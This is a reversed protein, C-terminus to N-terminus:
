LPLPDLVDGAGNLAPRLFVGSNPRGYGPAVLDITRTTGDPSRWGIEIQPTGDSAARRSASNVVLGDQAGPYLALRSHLETAAADEDVALDEALAGTIFARTPPDGSVQMLSLAQTDGDGLSPVVDLKPNAARLAGLTTAASLRPSGIARCFMAFSTNPGGEPQIM